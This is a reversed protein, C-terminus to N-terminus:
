LTAVPVQMLSLQAAENPNSAAYAGVANVFEIQKVPLNSECQLSAPVKECHRTPRFLDLSDKEWRPSACFTPPLASEGGQLGDLYSRSPWRAGRTAM